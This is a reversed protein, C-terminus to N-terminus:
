SWKKVRKQDRKKKMLQRPTLKNRKDKYPNDGTRFEIQIPTGKLHLVKRFTNELYRRYSDPVSKTQNGHIIILPPNKGGQHAYRLKIRRGKISPPPHAQMADELIQTLKPTAIKRFASQYVKKVEDFLVGVGSGHLASIFHTSAFNVFALKRDMETRVRERQGSELGDWKNVAIILARGADLVFGLLTMDQNSVEKSADMVLIVVNADEIAQLTKIVSFKEIADSVKSRRRVGATDILTYHEGRHEFPIYVSDRTTGPEDYALVREEKLIRNVLTSKGANPRGIIAIRISDQKEDDEATDEPFSILVESMLDAVGQGHAASVAVPRGLGLSHFDAIIAEKEMGETKNVVVQVHKGYQRLRKAIDEDVSTLGDRGDVLFLVVNSEAVAQLAQETILDSLHGEDNLGGTDVVIFSHKGFKGTGYQRDRTLGPKDAVLADRSRTLRNFFTSKGVNPRGVLAIVPKM